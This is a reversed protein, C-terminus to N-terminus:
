EDVGEGPPMRRGFAVVFAGAEDLTLHYALWRAAEALCDVCLHLEKTRLPAEAVVAAVRAASVGRCRGCTM